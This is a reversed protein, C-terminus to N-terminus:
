GILIATQKCSPNVAIVRWGIGHAAAFETFARYEDDRWTRNGIFEDFVLVSGAEIRSALANLVTRASSYIDSDINAFRVPGPHDALFAPLTDEFWGPHLRANDGVNPLAGGTTLVGAQTAGWGEPLGEFSDFGHVEQEAHAALVALSAGRRVGFELVLGPKRADGLAWALLAASMGFLRWGPALHPVLAAASDVVHAHKPGFLRPKRGALVDYAAGLAEYRGNAKPCAAARMLRREADAWGLRDLAPGHSGYWAAALDPARAILRDWAELAAETRGLGNLSMAREFVMQDTPAVAAEVLRLCDDFRADRRYAGALAEDRDPAPPLSEFLAIAAAPDNALLRAKGLLLTLREDGPTETLARTLHLTAARAEKRGLRATGLLADLGPEGEPLPVLLKLAGDFRGAAILGAAQALLIDRSM